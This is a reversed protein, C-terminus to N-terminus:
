EGKVKVWGQEILWGKVLEAPVDEGAEIRIGVPDDDSTNCNLGVVAIYEKGFEQPTEETALTELDVGLKRKGM